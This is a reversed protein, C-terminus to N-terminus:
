ASRFGLTIERLLFTDSDTINTGNFVIRRLPSTGTYSIPTLFTNSSLKGEGSSTLLPINTGTLPISPSNFDSIYISGNSPTGIIDYGVAMYSINVNEITTFSQLNLTITGTPVKFTESTPTWFSFMVQDSFNTGPYIAIPGTPGQPGDKGIDTAIEKIGVIISPINPGLIDTIYAAIETHEDSSQAVFEIYDGANLSIIYPVIPLSDSNNSNNAIRGNSNPVDIGNVRLWIYTYVTSGGQTKTLQVSYSAEYVGSKSVIIRTPGTPNPGTLSIGQQYFPAQEYYFVTGTGQTTNNIQQTNLSYYSAAINSGISTGTPGQLGQIGQYGQFGQLGQLGQYGQFGELGPSGTLGQLGQYGQFGQLGDIGSPGQPGTVGAGDGSPGQPGNSGQFGRLGQPGTPGTATKIHLKVTWRNGECTLIDNNISDIFMSACDCTLLKIKTCGDCDEYVVYINYTNLDYFYIPKSPQPIVPCYATVNWKYLTSSCLALGYVNGLSPPPAPIDAPYNGIFGRYLDGTTIICSTCDPKCSPKCASTSPQCVINCSPQVQCHLNQRCNCTSTCGNPCITGGLTKRLPFM